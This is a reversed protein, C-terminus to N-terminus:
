LSDSYIKRFRLPNNGPLATDTTVFSYPRNSCERYINMFNKYDIDSSHNTAINRPERKNHIKIILYHTSNLKPVSFFSKAIFVIFKNLKRCRTFLKKITAQFKKSTIINAVMHDFVILIIRNRNTNYININNYVDDM